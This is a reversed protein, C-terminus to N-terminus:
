SFSQNNQQYICYRNIGSLWVLLFSLIIRKWHHITCTIQRRISLSNCHKRQWYCVRATKAEFQRFKCKTHNKVVRYWRCFIIDSRVQRFRKCFFTSQSYKWMEGSWNGANNNELNHRICGRNKAWYWQM